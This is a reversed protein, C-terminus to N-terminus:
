PFYSAENTPLQLGGHFCFGRNFQEVIEIRTAAFHQTGAQDQEGTRSHATDSVLMDADGSHDFQNVIRCEQVIIDYIFSLRSPSCRGDIIKPTIFGGHQQAIEQEAMDELHARIEFGSKDADNRSRGGAGALTFQSLYIGPL